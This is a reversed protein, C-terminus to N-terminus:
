FPRSIGLTFARGYHTDRGSVFEVYSGLLDIGIRPLSWAIGAGAHFSDDRLMRDHEM